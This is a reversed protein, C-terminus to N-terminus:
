IIRIKKERLQVFYIQPDFKGRLNGGQMRRDLAVYKLLYM